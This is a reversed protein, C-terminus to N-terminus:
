VFNNRSAATDFNEGNIEDDIRESLERGPRVTCGVFLPPRERM